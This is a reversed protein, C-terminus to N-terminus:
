SFGYDCVKWDKTVIRNRFQRPTIEEGYENVLIEHKKLNELLIKMEEESFNSHFGWGASQKGIHKGEGDCHKCKIYYNTGM